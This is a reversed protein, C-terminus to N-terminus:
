IVTPLLPQIHLLDTLRRILAAEEVIGIPM